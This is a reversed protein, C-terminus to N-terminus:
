LPYLVPCKCAQTATIFFIQFLFDRETTVGFYIFVNSLTNVHFPTYTSCGLTLLSFPASHFHSIYFRSFHYSLSVYNCFTEKWLWKLCQVFYFPRQHYSVKSILHCLLFFVVQYFAHQSRTILFNSIIITYHRHCCRILNLNPKCRSITVVLFAM